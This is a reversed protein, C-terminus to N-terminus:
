RLLRGRDVLDGGEANQPLGAPPREVVVDHGCTVPDPPVCGGVSCADLPADGGVVEVPQGLFAEEVHVVLPEGAPRAGAGAPGGLHVATGIGLEVDGQRGTIVLQGSAEKGIGNHVSM